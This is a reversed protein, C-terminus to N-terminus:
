EGEVPEIEILGSECLHNLTIYIIEKIEREPIHIGCEMKMGHIQKALTDPDIISEDNGMEEVPVAIGKEVMFETEYDLVSLIDNPMVVIQKETFLKDAIYAVLEDNNIELPNMNNM